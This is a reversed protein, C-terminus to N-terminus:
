FNFGGGFNYGLGFIFGLAATDTTFGLNLRGTATFQRSIPFDLGATILGGVNGDATTILLGGGIYPYFPSNQLTFDYTIPLLIDFDDSFLLAPRASFSRSLGIKAFVTFGLDGISADGAVGLNGGVGLYSPIGGTTRGPEVDGFQAVENATTNTTRTNRNKPKPSVTPQESLAAASTEATGPVPQNKPELQEALQPQAESDTLAVTNPSSATEENLSDFASLTIAEEFNNSYINNGDFTEAKAPLAIIGSTIAAVSLLFTSRQFPSSIINM